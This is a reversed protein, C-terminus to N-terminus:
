GGRGTLTFGVALGGEPRNRAFVSGGHSRVIEDVISLGLGSGPQTRVQVARYFRDFIRPLDEETVGPGRDLVTVDVGSVAIEIPAGNPSYKAANDVLNSIAREIQRPRVHVEVAGADTVTVMRGSRRQTRAAVTRALDGLLVTEEPEAAALDSALDVLETLLLSLEEIDALVDAVVEQREAAPLEEIRGILEVNSRLSTLPTRLEHGADAVLRRQQEQSRGVAAVMAAFSTALSGVEGSAPVDVPTSLDLTAAIHAATDRLKMIPGVVWTALAWGLVAALATAILVFVALRLRLRSLVSDTEQTSRAVQLVGGAPWHRTVVRYRVGNVTAAVVSVHQDVMTLDSPRFPLAPAGDICATVVGASSVLQGATAPAFSGATPCGADPSPGGGHGHPGGRDGDGDGGSVLAAARAQLTEDISGHLQSSTDLYSAIAASAGVALALLALTAAIRRRLTM